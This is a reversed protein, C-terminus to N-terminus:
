GDHRVTGRQRLVSSSRGSKRGDNGSRSPSRPVSKAAPSRPAKQAKSTPRPSPRARGSNASKASARATPPRNSASTTVTSTRPPKTRHTPQRTSRSPPLAQPCPEPPTVDARAVAPTLSAATPSRDGGTDRTQRLGFFRPGNWRTGTILNAIESLSAFTTGDYAYGEALVMVRYRKGNWTRELVAGPGPRRPLEVRRDPRAAMATMAARLLRRTAAPLGGYAREQLRWSISRRLLDPGFAKPPEKRFLQRYHQRLAVIPMTALAEVECEVRANSTADTECQALGSSLPLRESM